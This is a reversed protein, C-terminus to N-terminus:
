QQAARRSTATLGLGKFAAICLPGHQCHTMGVPVDRQPLQLASGPLGCAENTTRGARIVKCLTQPQDVTCVSLAPLSAGSCCGGM